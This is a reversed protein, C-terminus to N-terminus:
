KRDLNRLEREIENAKYTTEGYREQIKGVIRERRGEMEEIDDDTLKNWNEKILGKFQKWNGKVQEWIADSKEAIEESHPHVKLSIRNYADKVPNRADSWKERQNPWASELQKEVDEFKRGRYEPKGAAEWGYRYAPEYADYQRGARYYPRTKYNEKWYLTEETPNVYEAVGKGAIAGAVAGVAGGVVAGIPGGVAGGIAAGTAAGGTGGAAVGVPHSGPEGTILDPNSDPTPDLGKRRKKEVVEEEERTLQELKEDTSKM